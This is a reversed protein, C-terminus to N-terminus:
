HTWRRPSRRTTLGAVAGSAGVASVDDAAGGLKTILAWVLGSFVILVLYLRLFEKRGYLQEVSRGLFFLGLM